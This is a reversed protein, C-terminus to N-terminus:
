KDHVQTYHVNDDDDCNFTTNLKNIETDVSDTKSLEFYM